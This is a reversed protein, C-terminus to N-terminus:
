PIAMRISGPIAIPDEKPEIAFREKGPGMIQAPKMRHLKTVDEIPNRFKKLILFASFLSKFNAALFVASFRSFFGDWADLTHLM